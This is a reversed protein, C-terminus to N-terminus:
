VPEEEWQAIPLASEVLGRGSRKGPLKLDVVM